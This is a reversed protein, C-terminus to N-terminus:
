RYNHTLHGSTGVNKIEIIELRTSEVESNPLPPLEPIQTLKTIPATEPVLIPGPTFTITDDNSAQVENTDESAGAAAENTDEPEESTEGEGEEKEERGKKKERQMKEEMEKFKLAM